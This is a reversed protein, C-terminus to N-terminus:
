CDIGLAVMKEKFFILSEELDKSNMPNKKERFSEFFASIIGFVQILPKEIEVGASMSSHLRMYKELVEPASSLNM